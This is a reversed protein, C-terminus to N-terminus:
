FLSDVWVYIDPVLLPVPWVVNIITDFLGILVGEALVGLTIATRWGAGYVRAYAIPVVLFAVHFGVLVILVLIGAIWGAAEFYYRTVKGSTVPAVAAGPDRLYRAADLSLQLVALLIGIGCVFYVDLSARPPWKLASVAGYVMVGLFLLTFVMGGKSQMKPRDEDLYYDMTVKQRKRHKWMPWFVTALIILGIAMVGPFMMWHLGYRDVSLWLYTELQPGLVVAVLVPPRPWGYRRMFFGVFSMGILAVLDAYTFHIGYAAAITFILTMPVVIYFPM